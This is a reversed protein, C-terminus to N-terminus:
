DIFINFRSFLLLVIGIKCYDVIKDVMLELFEIIVVKCDSCEDVFKIFVVNVM